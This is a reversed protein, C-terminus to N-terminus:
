GVPIGTSSSAFAYVRVSDRVTAGDETRVVVWRLGPLVDSFGFEGTPGVEARRGTGELVVETVADVREGWLIGEISGHFPVPAKMAAVSSWLLLVGCESEELLPGGPGVHLEIGDLDRARAVFDVTWDGGARLRELRVGNLVVAVDCARDDPLQRQIGWSEGRPARVTVGPAQRVLETLRSTDPIRGGDLHLISSEWGAREPFGTDELWQDRTSAGGGGPSACGVLWAAAVLPVAWTKM